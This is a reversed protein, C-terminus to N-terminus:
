NVKGPYFFDLILILIFFIINIVALPMEQLKFEYDSALVIVSKFRKKQLMKSNICIIFVELNLIISWNKYTFVVVKKLNFICLYKIM